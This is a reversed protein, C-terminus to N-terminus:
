GNGARRTEEQGDGSSDDYLDDVVVERLARLEAALQIREQPRLHEHKQQLQEILRILKVSIALEEPVAHKAQRYLTYARPMDGALRAEEAARVPEDLDQWAQSALTHEGQVGTALARFRALQENGDWFQSMPGARELITQLRHSLQLVRARYGDDGSREGLEQALSAWNYYLTFSDGLDAYAEM